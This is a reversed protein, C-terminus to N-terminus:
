PPPAGTGGCGWRRRPPAAPRPPPRAAAAGAARRRRRRRPRPRPPRLRRGPRAPPAAPAPAGPRPRALPPSLELPDRWGPAGHAGTRGPPHTPPRSPRLTRPHPTRCSPAETADRQAPAWQTRSTTRRCSSWSPCSQARRPGPGTGAGRGLVEAVPASGADRTAARLRPAVLLEADQRQWGVHPKGLEAGEQAPIEGLCPGGERGGRGGAGQGPGCQPQAQWCPSPPLQQLPQSRTRSHSRSHSPLPMNLAVRQWVPPGRAHLCAGAAGAGFARARLARRKPGQGEQGM